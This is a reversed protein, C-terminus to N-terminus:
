TSNRAPTAFLVTEDELPSFTDLYLAYGAGVLEPIRVLDDPRHYAAIALRPSLTELVGAAGTLVSREAGEVDMKVFGLETVGAQAVFDDLTITTATPARAHAQAGAVTTTAGAPAFPLQEGSREWVALEVIEIRQALEPNLALNARLVELNRPEFEFTYVKGGPGVRDALYLASDGWCGGVDFAVQGPEASVRAGGRSYRYQHLLFISVISVSHSHLRVASGDELPARYLSLPSFWPDPVDWTARQLCLEREVRLQQARYAEPTIRLPAHYPGLVRLKLVDVLARRSREDALREYTAQLGVAIELVGALQAAADAPDFHRRHWGARAAARELLDRGRESVATGVRARASAPAGASTPRRQELGPVYRHVDSLLERLLLETLDGM